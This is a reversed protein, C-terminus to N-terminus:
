LPELACKMAIEAAQIEHVAWHLDNAPLLYRPGNFISDAVLREQSLPSTQTPAINLWQAWRLSYDEWLVTDPDPSAVAAITLKCQSQFLVPRSSDLEHMETLGPSGVLWQVVGQDSADNRAIDYEAKLLGLRQQDECIVRIPGAVTPSTNLHECLRAISWTSVPDIWDPVIEAAPRLVFTRMCMRPHPVKLHPTWIRQEDFLLLDVDIRRAEWRLQRQRGLSYEISKITEWIDWVSKDTEVTAVANLFDSQGSPGGVPPTRYLRSMTVNSTGFLDYLMREAARM